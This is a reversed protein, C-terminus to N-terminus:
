APEAPPKVKCTVPFLKEGDAGPGPEIIRTAPAARAVEQVDLVCHMVDSSAGSRCDAPFRVTCISFGPPNSELVCVKTTSACPGPSPPIGSVGLAGVLAPFSMTTTSSLVLPPDPAAPFTLKFTPAIPAKETAVDDQERPPLGTMM